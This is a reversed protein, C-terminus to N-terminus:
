ESSLPQDLTKPPPLLSLRCACHPPCPHLPLASPPVLEGERLCQAGPCLAPVRLAMCPAPLPLLAVWCPGGEKGDGEGGPGPSLSALGEEPWM